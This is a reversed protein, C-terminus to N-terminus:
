RRFQDAIEHNRKLRQLHDETTDSIGPNKTGNSGGNPNNIKSFWNHLFRSCSKPKREPNAELWSDARKYEAQREVWPFAEALLLDQRETVSYHSGKFSLSPDTGEIRLQPDNGRLVEKGKGEGERGKRIFRASSASQVRQSRAEHASVNENSEDEKVYDPPPPIESPKEMNNIFQHKKWSPIYGYVAGNAEYKVVFSRAELASLVREFDVEDHPLIGHKLTRPRWYFRGERDCFLWLGAFAVRIPLGTEYELDYLQEHTFFDPKITRIRPSNM